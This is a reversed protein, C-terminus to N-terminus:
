GMGVERADRSPAPCLRAVKSRENAASSLANLKEAAMVKATEDKEAQIRRAAEEAM